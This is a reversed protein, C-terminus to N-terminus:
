DSRRVLMPHAGSFFDVKNTWIVALVECSRSGLGTPPPPSNENKSCFNAEFASNISNAYKQKANRMSNKQIKCVIKKQKQM